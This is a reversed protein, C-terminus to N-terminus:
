RTVLDAEPEVQCHDLEALLSQGAKVQVNSTGRAPVSIKNTQSSLSKGAADVFAFEVEFTAQRSNPNTVEVTAYPIAKTACSVVLATGDQLASSRRTSTSRPTYSDHKQSSSSCGGGSDSDRHSSKHRGSSKHGSSFGTLALVVTAM